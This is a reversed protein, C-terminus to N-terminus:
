RKAIIFLEKRFMQTCMKTHMYTEMKTPYTGSTFNSPCIIVRHKVNVAAALNNELHVM